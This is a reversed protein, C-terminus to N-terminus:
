VRAVPTPLRSVHFDLLPGFRGAFMGGRHARQHIDVDPGSNGEVLIVGTDSIAIDWGVLVRDSFAAHAREALARVDSWQPVQRGAIRAGTVPQHALWSHKTFMGLDSAESLIGTDLDIDAAIGGAHFNDVTTNTGVAMRLVAAVLEPQGAENICTLARVTSLAGGNSLNALDPHNRARPQVIVSRHLSRDRLHALLGAADLELGDARRYRDEGVHNWREAGNGGSGRTPKVFLDFCPLRGSDADLGLVEGDRATALVPICPLAHQACHRAFAEKDSLLTPAHPHLMDYIGLKTESRTMYQAIAGRLPADHLSYIYYWPPLVGATVYLRLQDFVQMLVPRGHRRAITRGNHITLVTGSFLLLVPWLCLAAILEIGDGVCAPRWFFRAYARHLRRAPSDTTRGFLAALAIPLGGARYVVREAHFALRDLSLGM